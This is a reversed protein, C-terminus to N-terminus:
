PIIRDGYSFSVGKGTYVLFFDDKTCGITLFLVELDQVWLLISGM